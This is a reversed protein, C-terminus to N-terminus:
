RMRSGQPFVRRQRVDRTIYTHIKNHIRRRMCQLSLGEVEGKADRIVALQEWKSIHSFADQDM